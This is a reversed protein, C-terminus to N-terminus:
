RKTPSSSRSAAIRTQLWAEIEVEVWGRARPGIKVQTPFDGKAILLYVTSRSLGCRRLVEPLRLLTTREM